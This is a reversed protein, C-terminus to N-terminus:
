KGLHHKASVYLQGYFHGPTVLTLTLKTLEVLPKAWRGTDGNYEVM